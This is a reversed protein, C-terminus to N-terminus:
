ATKLKRRGERRPYLGRRFLEEQAGKILVEHHRATDPRHVQEGLMQFGSPRVLQRNVAVMRNYAARREAESISPDKSRYIEYDDHILHKAKISEPTHLQLEWKVGEPSTLNVNVGSYAQGRAFTNEVTDLKHGRSQLEDLFKKGSTTFHQSDFLATYRLADGVDSAYQEQTIGKSIAKDHIKRTLSSHSKFRFDDPSDPRAQLAEMHGGHKAVSYVLDKTVRPEVRKVRALVVRAHHAASEREPTMVEAARSSQEAASLKAMGGARTHRGLFQQAFQEGRYNREGGGKTKKLKIALAEENLPIWGHKWHPALELDRSAAEVIALDILGRQEESLSAGIMRPNDLFTTSNGNGRKRAKRKLQRRGIPKPGPVNTNATFRRADELLANQITAIRKQRKQQELIAKAMLKRNKRADKGLPHDRPITSGGGRRFIFLGGHGRPHLAANWAFDIEAADLGAETAFDVFSRLEHEAIALDIIRRASESHGVDIAKQIGLHAAAGARVQPRVHGGGRAWRKLANKAVAIAHSKSMGRKRMLAHAVMRVYDDLRRPGHTGLPSADGVRGGPTIAMDLQATM